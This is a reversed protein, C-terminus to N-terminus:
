LYKQHQRSSPHQTRGNALPSKEEIACAKVVFRCEAVPSPLRAASFTRLLKMQRLVDPEAYRLHSRTLRPLESVQARLAANEAKLDVIEDEPTM